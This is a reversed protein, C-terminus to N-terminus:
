HIMSQVQLLQCCCFQDALNRYHAAKRQSCDVLHISLTRCAYEDQKTILYEPKRETLVKFIVPTATCKFDSISLILNLM